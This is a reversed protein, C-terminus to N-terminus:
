ALLCKTAHPGENLSSFVIQGDRNVVVTGPTPPGSQGNTLLGFHRAAQFRADSLVTFPLRLTTRLRHSKRTSEPSVALVEIGARKFDGYREAYDALQRLCFPCYAGRVYLMVASGSLAFDSIRRPIGDSDPLSFDSTIPM